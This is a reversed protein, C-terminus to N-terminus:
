GQPQWPREADVDPMEARVIVKTEQFLRKLEAAAASPAGNAILDLGEALHEPRLTMREVHARARKFQFTSFYLRNVASLIAVVRFAGELLMQRRFLEADRAALHDNLAWIPFISLNAEVERRRLGEPYAARAKWERVLTEGHMPLGELIGAAVKATIWDVDGAAIRELRNVTAGILEGGTQVEVGALRFRGGFGEPEPPSIEGMPEAGLGRMLEDFAAPSPPEEYYNLLDIDSHEDCFGLAASGALM